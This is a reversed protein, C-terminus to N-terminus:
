VRKGCRDSSASPSRCPRSRSTRNCTTVFAIGMAADAVDCLIGGHVTGMPNAHQPGVDLWGVAHGGGVPDISFGILDAVPVRSTRLREILPHESTSM